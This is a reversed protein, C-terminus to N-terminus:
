AQQEASPLVVTVTTGSEPVSEIMIAGGHEEIVRQCLALGIGTGGQKTSFFLEFVRPLVDPAIAPGLNHLRCRWGNNPLRASTLSLDSGEPAADIANVLLNGFAQALLEADLHCRVHPRARSHRLVLAKSELLGRQADLVRDWVEDPDAIALRTPAPRGYELLSTVVGNLREVERLIRGVNKEVVPDERVRFRLLQAASSIGFLPNRLEHAVGAAVEGIAELRRKQGVRTVLEARDLASATQAAVTTLVWETDERRIASDLSLLVTVAGRVRGSILAVTLEAGLDTTRSIVRPATISSGPPVSDLARKWQPALLSELAEEGQEFGVQHALHPSEPDDGSLAIAVADCGVARRLQQAAEQLVRDTAITQALAMGTEILVERSQNSATTDTISFAFGTVTHGEALPSIQVLFVREEDPSHYPLEWSITQAHGARLLRMAEQIRDRPALAAIVDWISLTEGDPSIAESSEPAAPASTFHTWPRNVFAVRGELDVAYITIPLAELIQRDLPAAVTLPAM